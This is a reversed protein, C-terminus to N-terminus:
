FNIVKNVYDFIGVLLCIMLYKLCICFVVMVNGWEYVMLFWYIRMNVVNFVVVFFCVVVFGYGKCLFGFDIVM